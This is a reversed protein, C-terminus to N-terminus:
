GRRAGDLVSAVADAASASADQKLQAHLRQYTPQLAAVADPSRFWHLVDAALHEPTCDDQMREPAIDAGAPSTARSSM